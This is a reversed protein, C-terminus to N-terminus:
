LTILCIPSVRPTKWNSDFCLSIFFSIISDTFSAAFECRTFFFSLIINTYLELLFSHVVFAISILSTLSYTYNNGFELIILSLVGIM